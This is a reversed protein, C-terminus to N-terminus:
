KRVFWGDLLADIEIMVLSPFAGFAIAAALSGVQEVTRAGPVPVNNASEGWLSAPAGQVTTGGDSQLLERIANFRTLYEPNPKGDIYYRTWDQKTDRIDDNPIISDVADKGSSLGMALPSMIFNLLGDKHLLTQMDPVDMLVHM